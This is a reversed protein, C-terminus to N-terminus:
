GGARGSLYLLPYLFVWVVDVLHWYLAVAEFAPSRLPRAGTAAQALLWAVVVIGGTMHLGHLGTLLWYFSIAIQAGPEQVPFGAGPVLGRAIDSQWEVAKIGLFVLGLLLTLGFGGYAARPLEARAGQAGVAATLSSTLLVLTNATGLVIDAERGAAAFAEPHFWRTALFALM